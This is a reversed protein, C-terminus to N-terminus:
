NETRYSQVWNEIYRLPTEIGFKVNQIDGLHTLWTKKEFCVTVIPVDESIKKVLANAAAKKETLDAAEFEALEKSAGHYAAYELLARPSLDTPLMLQVYAMDFNGASLDAEFTEWKVASVEAPIGKKRMSEAIKSAAEYKYENETNVLITLAEGDWSTLASKAYEIEGDYLYSYEPFIGEAKDVAAEFVDSLEVNVAEAIYRRKEPDRLKGSATNFVICHLNRTQVSNSELTGNFSLTSTAVPSTYALDFSKTEFARVAEAASSVAYLEITDLQMPEASVLKPSTENSLVYKGTGDPYEEDASGYPIIPYTLHPLLGGDAYRLEAIVTREGETYFSKVSPLEDIHLMLSYVVDESTVAKGSRNFVADGKLSLTYKEGDYSYSECLRGTPFCTDTLEFLGEHTLSTVLRNYETTCKVPNLTDSEYYALSFVTDEDRRYSVSVASTKKADESAKRAKNSAEAEDILTQLDSDIACGTLIITFFIFLALIRKM